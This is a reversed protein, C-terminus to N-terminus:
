GIIFPVPMGHNRIEQEVKAIEELAEQFIAEGNIVMGSPLQLNQFKRLNNGWVKRAYAETLKRLLREGWLATYEDLDLFAYVEAVIVKGVEYTEMNTDLHLKGTSQRFRSLPKQALLMSMESLYQNAIFYSSANGFTMMDWVSAATFQYEFSMFNSSSGGIISTNLVKTVAQVNPPIPIWSNDIDTQTLTHKIYTKESANEHYEHWFQLADDVVMEWQEPAINVKIVPEGLQMKTHAILEERSTPLAMSDGALVTYIRIRRNLTLWPMYRSISDM